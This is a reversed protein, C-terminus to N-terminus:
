GALALEQEDDQLLHDLKRKICGRKRRVQARISWCGCIELPTLGWPATPALCPTLAGPRQTQEIAMGAPIM